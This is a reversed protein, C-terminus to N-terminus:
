SFSKIVFYYDKQKGSTDVVHIRYAIKGDPLYKYFAIDVAQTDEGLREHNLHNDSDERESRDILKYQKATIKEFSPSSAEYFAKLQKWYAAITDAQIYEGAM